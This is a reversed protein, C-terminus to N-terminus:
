LRCRRLGLPTMGLIMHDIERHVPDKAARICDDQYLYDVARAIAAQDDQRGMRAALERISLNGRGPLSVEWEYIARLVAVDYTWREAVPDAENTM